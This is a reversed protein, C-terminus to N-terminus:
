LKLNQAKPKPTQLTQPTPQNTEGVTLFLLQFSVDGEKLLMEGPRYYEEQLKTALVGMFLETCGRLPAGQASQCKQLQEGYMCEAVAQALAEPLPKKLEGVQSLLRGERM